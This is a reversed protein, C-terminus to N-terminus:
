SILFAKPSPSFGFGLSCSQLVSSQLFFFPRRGPKAIQIQPGSAGRADAGETSVCHKGRNFPPPPLVLHAPTSTGGGRVSTAVAAGCLNWWPCDSCIEYLLGLMESCNHWKVLFLGLASQVM